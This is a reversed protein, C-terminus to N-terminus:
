ASGGAMAELVTAAVDDGTQEAVQCLGTPCTINIEILRGGIIDLGAFRVGRKALAPAVAAVIEQAAADVKRAEGRGGAAMNGRHDDDRPIRALMWELGGGNVAFVRFDGARADPLYAQAMLARRGGGSLTEFVSRYNLDSAESIYIGQGGMGDLPKLVVQRHARRFAEAAAFDSGVWTPPILGPFDLISLKENMDRLARPHNIVAVTRSARELLHTATIFNKDVPPEKRMLVADFAALPQLRCDAVAMWAAAESVELLRARACVAGDAVQMDSIEAAYVEDGRRAAARMLAITSDKAPNLGELPDAIFLLRM